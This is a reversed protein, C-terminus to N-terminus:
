RLAVGFLAEGAILPKILCATDRATEELPFSFSEEQLKGGGPAIAAWKLAVNLPQCRFFSCGKEKLHLRFMPTFSPLPLLTEMRGLCSEQKAILQCVEVHELLM